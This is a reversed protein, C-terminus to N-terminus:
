GAQGPLDRGSEGRSGQGPSVACLDDTNRARGDRPLVPYSREAAGVGPVHKFVSHRDTYLAIPLGHGEILERILAFYDRTNEYQCFLASVVNGTADDVALLLMFQPGDEGLWRHYSGDIQILMGEGLCASDVFM